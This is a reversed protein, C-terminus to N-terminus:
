HVRGNPFLKDLIQSIKFTNAISCKKLLKDVNGFNGSKVRAVIYMLLMEHTKEQKIKEKFLSSERDKESPTEMLFRIQRNFM